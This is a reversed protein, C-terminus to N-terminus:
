GQDANEFFYDYLIVSVVENLQMGKQEAEQKLEELLEVPLRLTIQKREM